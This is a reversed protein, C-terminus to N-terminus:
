PLRQMLHRTCTWWTYSVVCQPGLHVIMRGQFLKLFHLPEKGQAVRVTDADGGRRMVIDLIDKTKM